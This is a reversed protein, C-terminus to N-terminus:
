KAVRRRHRRATSRTTATASGIQLAINSATQTIVIAAIAHAVSVCRHVRIVFRKHEQVVEIVLRQYFDSPDELEIELFVIEVNPDLNHDRRIVLSRFSLEHDQRSYPQIRRLVCLADPRLTFWARSVEPARFRRFPRRRRVGDM